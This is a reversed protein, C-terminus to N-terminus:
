LTTHELWYVGVIKEPKSKTIYKGFTDIVEKDTWNDKVHREFPNGNVEDQPYHKIPISIIAATTIKMIRDVLLIAEEKTVHELVDGMIVLDFKQDKEFDIDLINKNIVLDYLSELNFEKIYPEWVEVGTWHSALLLSHKNLLKRYTGAGCGIDLVKNINNKESIWKVITDKGERSSKPM